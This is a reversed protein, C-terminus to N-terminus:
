GVEWTAFCNPTEFCVVRVLFLPSKEEALTRKVQAALHAALVEASPPADLLYLKSQSSALFAALPDGRELIFGHDWNDDLWRGVLDKVRGFDLVRGVEDLGGNSGLTVDFRYRHGHPHKCKGEHRLLRHGADIELTRTITIM